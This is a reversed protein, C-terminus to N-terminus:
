QHTPDAIVGAFLMAGTPSDRLLLAFPRDFVLVKKERQKPLAIGTPALVATAAAATTGEEDV